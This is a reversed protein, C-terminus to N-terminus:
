LARVFISIGYTKYILNFLSSLHSKAADAPRAFGNSDGAYVTGCWIKQATIPKLFDFHGRPAAGNSRESLLIVAQMAIKHKVKLTVTM